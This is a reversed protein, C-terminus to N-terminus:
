NQDGHGIDDHVDNHAIDQHHVDGHADGHAADEHGADAHGSDTHSDVHSVDGHASDTHPEDTHSDGHPIDVHGDGHANDTHSDVHGIVQDDHITGDTHTGDSHDGYGYDDRHTGATDNHSDGHASDAHSDDFWVDTHPGGAPIDGHATDSHTVDGHAVDGHASDAHAADGHVTDTHTDTFAVDTHVSDDHHDAHPVDTHGLILSFGLRTTIGLESRGPIELLWYATADSIVPVWSIWVPGDAERSYTIANINFGNNQPLATMPESFGARDSIERGAMLAGRTISLGELCINVTRVRKTNQLSLHLSYQVVENAFKIADTTPYPMDLSFSNEGFDEISDEDSAEVIIDSHDIVMKGRAQAFMLYCTRPANILYIVTNALYTATISVTATIDEGSGDPEVNFEYDVHPVPPLMDLGGARWSRQGLETFVGRIYLPTNAEIPTATGGSAPGHLEYLVVDSDGRTRPHVRAQYLNTLSARDDEIDITNGIPYDSPTLEVSNTFNRARVSRPEYVLTGDGKTWAVALTSRCLRDIEVAPIAKEAQANDFAYTITDFGVGIQTFRPQVPMADIILGFIEHDLTDVQLPLSSLRKRALQDWYDVCFVHALRSQYIGTDPKVRMVRGTWVSKLFGAPGNLRVQVGINASFGTRVNAHGPTYYGLKHGSNIESNNLDFQLIGTRATRDALTSGFIGRSARMGGIIDETIETWGNLYGSLEVFYTFYWMFPSAM